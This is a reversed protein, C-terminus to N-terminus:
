GQRKLVFSRTASITARGVPAMSGKATLKLQRAHELLARGAATLQISLKAAGPATLSTHGRAVLTPKARALHAGKPVLYWSITLQGASLSDFSLTYRGHKLLAGITANKGTPSLLKELLSELQAASALSTTSGLVQVQPLVPATPEAQPPAATVVSTLKSFAYASAGATNFATERVFLEQGVAAGNLTYSEGEALRYCLEAGPKCGFWEDRYSSPDGTWGAHGVKLTQGEVDSGTITPRSLEQPPALELAANAESARGGEVSLKTADAPSSADDYYQEVYEGTFSSFDVIYKGPELATIEYRGNAQTVACRFAAENEACVAIGELPAQTSASTVTGTIRGGEVLAADIGAKTAGTFVSVAEAEALSSKDEYYQPAYNRDEEFGETFLVDYSGEALGAIEYAGSANTTACAETELQASFACVEINGVPKTTAASTVTGTIRGGELLAANIESLTDGEGLTLVDAEAFRPAKEYFQPAYNLGSNEPSRFEVTYEDPPLASLTYKGDAETNTCRFVFEGLEEFPGFACVEIGEIPAHTAEATVLGSIQGSAATAASAGATLTGLPSPARVIQSAGAANDRPAGAQTMWRRSGAELARRKDHRGASLRASASPWASSRVHAGASGVFVLSMTLIVFLFASALAM